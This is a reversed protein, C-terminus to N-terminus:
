NIQYPEAYAALREKADLSAPASEDPFNGGPHRDGPPFNDGNLPMIPEHSTNPYYLGAILRYRGPPLTDPTTINHTSTLILGPTWIKYPAESDGPPGDHQGIGMGAEDVLHVFASM